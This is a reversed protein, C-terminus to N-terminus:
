YYDKPLRSKPLKKIIVKVKLDEPEKNGSKNYVKLLDQLWIMDGEALNHTASEVLNGSVVLHSNIPNGSPYLPESSPVEMRFIYYLSENRVLYLHLSERKLDGLGVFLPPKTTNSKSFGPSKNKPTQEKGNSPMEEPMFKYKKMLEIVDRGHIGRMSSLEKYVARPVSLAHLKDHGNFEMYCICSSSSSGPIIRINLDNFNPYKRQAKEVDIFYEKRYPM